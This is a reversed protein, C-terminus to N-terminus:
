LSGRRRKKSGPDPSHEVLWKAQEVSQHNRDKDDRKMLVHALSVIHSWAADVYEQLDGTVLHMAHEKPCYNENASVINVQGQIQPFRVSGLVYHVSPKYLFTGDDQNTHEYANWAYGGHITDASNAVTQNKQFTVVNRINKIWMSRETEIAMNFTCPHSLGKLLPSDKAWCTGDKGFAPSAFDTHALQHLYPEEGAPLLDKGDKTLQMGGFLLYIGNLYLHVPREPDPELTPFLQKDKVPKVTLTEDSWPNPHPRYITWEQVLNFKSIYRYLQWATLRAHAVLNVNAPVKKPDNLPVQTRNDCDIGDFNIAEGPPMRKGPEKYEKFAQLWASYAEVRLKELMEGEPAFIVAYGQGNQIPGGDRPDKELLKAKATSCDHDHFWVEEVEMSCQIHGETTGEQFNFTGKVVRTYHGCKKDICRQCYLIVPSKAKYKQQTVKSKTTNNNGPASAIVMLDLDANDKFDQIVSKTIEKYANIMKAAQTLPAGSAPRGLTKPKFNDQIPDVKIEECNGLLIVDGAENVPYLLAPMKFPHTSAQNYFFPPDFEGGEGGTKSIQKMDFLHRHEETIYKSV